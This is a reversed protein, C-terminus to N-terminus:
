FIVVFNELFCILLILSLQNIKKEFFNKVRFHVVIFSLFLYFSYKVKKDNSYVLLPCFTFSTLVLIVVKEGKGSKQWSLNQSQGQVFGQLGRRRETGKM